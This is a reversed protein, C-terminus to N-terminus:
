TDNTLKLCVPNPGFTGTEVWCHGEQGFSPCDKQGCNNLSSCNVKEGMPLNQDSTDGKGYQSVVAFARHLPKTISRTILYAAALGILTAIILGGIMTHSASSLTAVAGNAIRQTEEMGTAAVAQAEHVVNDGIETRRKGLDNNKIWNTLYNNMAAQYENAAQRTNEIRKLDDELYTIKKLDEFKNQMLDFNQNADKIIQPDRRAQSKFAAIRTANGIDIIDNVLTIKELRELLAAQAAGEAVESKMKDNQGALFDNCNSMYQTAAHDLKEQDANMEANVKVAEDVLQQYESLQVEVKEVAPRLAKLNESNDDLTKAADLRDQLTKIHQRANSLMQENGTFGYGRMEYMTEFSSREIKNAIDVEPVYEKDLMTSQTEVKDMNVVALTGLGIALVLLLGFGGGIKVGLKLKKFM